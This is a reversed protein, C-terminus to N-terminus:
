TKHREEKKSKKERNREPPTFGQVSISRPLVGRVQHLHLGDLMLGSLYKVFHVERIVCVLHATLRMLSIKAWLAENLRVLSYKTYKSYFAWYSSINEKQRCANSTSDLVLALSKQRFMELLSRRLDESPKLRNTLIVSM